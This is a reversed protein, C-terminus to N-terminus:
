DAVYEIAFIKEFIKSPQESIASVKCTMTTDDNGRLVFGLAIKTTKNAEVFLIKTGMLEGTNIAALKSDEYYIGENGNAKFTTKSKTCTEDCQLYAYGKELSFDLGSQSGSVFQYRNGDNSMSKVFVGNQTNCTLEIYVNESKENFAVSSHMNLAYISIPTELQSRYVKFYNDGIDNISLDDRGYTIRFDKIGADVDPTGDGEYLINGSLCTELYKENVEEPFLNEPFSSYKEECTVQQTTGFLMPASFSIVIISVLYIIFLFRFMRVADKHHINYTGTVMYFWFILGGVTIVSIRIINIILTPPLLFFIISLLLSFLLLSVNVLLASLFDNRKFKLYKSAGWMLFVSVIWYVSTTAITSLTLM